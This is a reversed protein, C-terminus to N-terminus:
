APILPIMVPTPSDPMQKPSTTLLAQTDIEVGFVYGKNVKKQAAMNFINTGDPPPCQAM